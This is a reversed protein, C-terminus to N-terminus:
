EEESNDETVEGTGGTFYDNIPDFVYDIWGNGHKTAEEEDPFGTHELFLETGAAHRNFRIYVNSPLARRDWEAPKWTYGLEKGAQYATVEGQVWGDFMEFHGGTKPEIVSLGGGWAAIIGADTLAEFVQEPTAYVIYSTKYNFGAM